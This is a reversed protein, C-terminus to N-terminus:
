NVSKGLLVRRYVQELRQGVKTWSNRENAFHQIHSRRTELNEYLDSAFYTRIAQALDDSDKAQCLFGTEGEIIDEGLSGVNTAIAPLGFAYGLFLVGSQFVSTYPLVLVDAAKFYKETEEDPIYEIRQLIRDSGWSSAISQEITRWYSECGKVRGAIILRYTSDAKALKSFAEVLFELGKYPAINGFFLLIKDAESIGLQRKADAHSLATNPVTNNIGFPIVSVKDEPLHFESILEAKIRDGHVFVHDSLAYQVRLSLRNLFSDRADRKRTNVNHATLLLRKEMAKYYLMLLTRDILQFKNNWLIHFIPAESGSVYRILRAYYALVRVVKRHLPANESQDGRLNLFRVLPTGHLEPADLEDSGIFDVAIDQRVMSSVMGLAYPRDGGGTLLAIRFHAANCGTRDIVRHMGLRDGSRESAPVECQLTDASQETSIM